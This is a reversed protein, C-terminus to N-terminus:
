HESVLSRKIEEPTKQIETEPINQTVCEKGKSNPLMHEM